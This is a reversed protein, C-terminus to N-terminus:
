NWKGNKGEMYRKLTQVARQKTMKVAQTSSNLEEAIIKLSKKKYYYSIVVTKQQETLTDMAKNLKQKKNSKESSSFDFFSCITNDDSLVVWEEETIFQEKRSLYEQHRIYDIKKHLLAKKMYNIFKAFVIDDVFENNEKSTKEFFNERKM